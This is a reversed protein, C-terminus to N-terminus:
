VLVSEVGETTYRKASTGNRSRRSGSQLPTSRPTGSGIQPVFGETIFRKGATGNLPAARRGEHHLAECCDREPSRNLARRPPASRPPGRGRVPEVGETTSRMAATGKRRRARRGGRYLEECLNGEPSRNSQRRPPAGRSPGSRPVARHGRHHLAERSDEFLSLSSARRPTASLPVGTGSSARRGGHRLAERHGRGTVPQVDESTSRKTTTEMRPDARHGGDHLANSATGNRHGSLRGGDHHAERREVLVPETGETTYCKAATGELARGRARRQPASRPPGM